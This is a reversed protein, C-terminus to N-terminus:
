REGAQENSGIRQQNDEKGKAEVRTLSNSAQAQDSQQDAHSAHNNQQTEVNPSICVPQESCNQNQEASCAVRGTGQEDLM